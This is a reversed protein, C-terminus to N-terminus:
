SLGPFPALPVGWRSALVETEGLWRVLLGLAATDTGATGLDRAGAARLRTLVDVALKRAADPTTVPFPLPHALDPPGASSGAMSEQAAARAQLASLTSTALAHQAGSPSQAAVVEFGYVAARTTALFTAALSQGKWAEDPWTAPRGLLTAAASRQALLSGVLPASGAMVRSLSSIATPGLDSAEAAALEAATTRGGSTPSGNTASGTPAPGTGPASAAAATATGTAAGPRGLESDPVGLRLLEARLVTAQQRHLAALRAPLGSGAGGAARSALDETHRWLAVMFSEGPVAKRPAPRPGPTGDGFRIGCASLSLTAATALGLGLAQRRTPHVPAGARDMPM